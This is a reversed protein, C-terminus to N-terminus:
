RGGEVCSGVFTWTPHDSPQDVVVAQRVIGRWFDVEQWITQIQQELAGVGQRHRALLWSQKSQLAKGQAVLAKIKLETNAQQQKTVEM